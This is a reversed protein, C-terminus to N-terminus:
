LDISRAQPTLTRSANYARLALTASTAYIAIIVVLAIAKWKITRVIMLVTAYLPFQIFVLILGLSEASTRM